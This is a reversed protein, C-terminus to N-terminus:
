ADRVAELLYDNWDSGVRPAVLLKVRRGEEFMRTALAAAALQGIGSPDHDAFILVREVDAPVQVHRLGNASIAAWTALGTGRRVSFATELGEAIALQREAPDLRVATGMTAGPEIPTMLKKPSPVHAKTGSPSLYTRHVSVVRGGGDQVLALMAPFAGDAAQGDYYPLRPHARVTAPWPDLMVGPVRAALYRRVPEAHRHTLPFAESWTRHIAHRMRRFTPGVSCGPDSRPIRCIPPHAITTGDLVARVGRLVEPFTWANVWALLGLGDGHLGCTNCGGGGTEAADHFLRFGDHGGHVPCPVHRGIRALAPALAPALHGHIEIWRGRARVKIDAARPAIYPRRTM